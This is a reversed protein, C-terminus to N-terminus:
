SAGPGQKPDPAHQAARHEAARRLMAEAVARPDVVYSAREVSTKLDNLQMTRETVPAAGEATTM